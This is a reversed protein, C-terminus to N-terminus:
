GHRRQQRPRRKAVQATDVLPAVWASDDYALAQWGDPPVQPAVGLDLTLGAGAASVIATTFSASSVHLVGLDDVFISTNDPRSIGLATATATNPTITANPTAGTVTADAVTILTAGAVTTAGDTVGVGAAPEVASIVGDTVTITTGDPQM